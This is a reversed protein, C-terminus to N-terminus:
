LAAADVSIYPGIKEFMARILRTKGLWSCITIFEDEAPLGRDLRRVYETIKKPDEGRGLESPVDQILRDSDDAKTMLHDQTMYLDAYFASNAIDFKILVIICGNPM